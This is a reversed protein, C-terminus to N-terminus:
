VFGGASLGLEGDVPSLVEELLNNDFLPATM